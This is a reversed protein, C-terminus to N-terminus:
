HSEAINQKWVIRRSLTYNIIFSVIIAVLISFIYWVGLKGTLVFLICENIGLTFLSVGCYKAWNLSKMTSRFTWLSNLIYNSTVVLVFVVSYALLYNFKFYDVALFMLGLNLITGSGGIVAFRFLKLHILRSLM